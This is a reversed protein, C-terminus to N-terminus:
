NFIEILIIFFSNMCEKPASDFCLENLEKLVRSSELSLTESLVLLGSLKLLALDQEIRSISRLVFSILGGLIVGLFVKEFSM